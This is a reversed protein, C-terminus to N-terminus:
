DIWLDRGVPGSPCQNTPKCVDTALPQQRVRNNTVYNQGVIAM